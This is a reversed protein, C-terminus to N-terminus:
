MQVFVIADNGLNKLNLINLGERLFTITKPVLVRRWIIPKSQLFTIKLQLIAKETM